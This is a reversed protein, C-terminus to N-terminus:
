PIPMELKVNTGEPASPSLLAKGKWREMRAKMNRIGNGPNADNNNIGIGNDLILISLMQHNYQFHINVRSARSHRIINTIAEKFSLFLDKRKAVDIRISQGDSDDRLHLSIDAGELSRAAFESLYPIVIDLESNAPNMNWVIQHLAENSNKATDLIRQFLSSNNIKNVVAMGSLIEINSLASGIEDHLDRSIEERM